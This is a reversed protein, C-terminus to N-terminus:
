RDEGTVRDVKTHYRQGVKGGVVAALLTGLLVAALTIIGGWTATDTPIPISPM